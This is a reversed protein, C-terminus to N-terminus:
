VDEKSSALHISPNFFHVYQLWRFYSMKTQGEKLSKSYEEHLSTWSVEEDTFFRAQRRHACPFGDELRTNWSLTQQKVVDKDEDTFAHWPTKPALKQARLAPDKM